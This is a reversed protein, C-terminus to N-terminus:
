DIILRAGGGVVFVMEEPKAMLEICYFGFERRLAHLLCVDLESAELATASVVDGRMYGLVDGFHEGHTV